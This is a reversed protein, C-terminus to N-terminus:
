FKKWTIPSMSLPSKATKALDRVTSLMYERALVDLGTGPEDLVLLEPDAILARAILVNQREGKSLLDFPGALRLDTLLMKAKIVLSDTLPYGLGLTGFAGGLVIDLATEETFWKDFYSSSVWGIRKRLAM